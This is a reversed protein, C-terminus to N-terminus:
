KGKAPPTVCAPLGRPKLLNDFCPGAIAASRKPHEARRRPWLHSSDRSDDSVMSGLM